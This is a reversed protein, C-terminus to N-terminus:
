VVISHTLAFGSEVSGSINALQTEVGDRFEGDRNNETYGNMGKVYGKERAANVKNVASEPGEPFAIQSIHLSKGEPTFVEYHIHTSRGPYWGPFISSFAVKGNADAKQRGRLFHENRLDEKQLRHNGYESYLGDKDCHWIDVLAGSMPQCGNSRDLITLEIDLHIGTRDGRIDARMLTDPDHTTFPGPTDTATPSCETFDPKPSLGAAFPVAVASLGLSRLFLKRKM